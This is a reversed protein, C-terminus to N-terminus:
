KENDALLYWTDEANSSSGEAPNAISFCNETTTYSVHTKSTITFQKEAKLAVNPNNKNAKLAQQYEKESDFYYL